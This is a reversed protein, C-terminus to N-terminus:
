KTSRMAHRILAQRTKRLNRHTETSIEQKGSRIRVDVVEEKKLTDVARKIAQQWLSQESSAIGYLYMMQTRPDFVYSEDADYGYIEGMTNRIEEKLARMFRRQEAEDLTPASIQIDILAM